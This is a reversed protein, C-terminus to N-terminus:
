TKALRRAVVVVFFSMLFAGVFGETLAILRAHPAPVFDGYGVTAFTIGSFYVSDFLGAPGQGDPGVAGGVAWYLLGYLFVMVLATGVLRLPRHGFGAVLWYLFLEVRQLLSLRLERARRMRLYMVGYTLQRAEAFLGCNEYAAAARRYMRLARELDAPPKPTRLFDGVRQCSVAALYWERAAEAAAAARLYEQVARDEDGAKAARAALDFAEQAIQSERRLPDDDDQGPGHGHPLEEIPAFDAPVNDPLGATVDDLAPVPEARDQAQQEQQEM